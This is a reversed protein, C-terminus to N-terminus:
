NHVADWNKSPSILPREMAVNDYPLSRRSFSQVFGREEFERAFRASTHQSGRNAHVMLGKPQDERAAASEPADIVLDEDIRGSVRRGVIKRSFLDPCTALYLWGEKAPIHTVDGRQAENRASASFSRYERRPCKITLFRSLRNM